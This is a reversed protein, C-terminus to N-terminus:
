VFRIKAKQTVKWKGNELEAKGNEKTEISNNGLIELDTAYKLYEDVELLRKQVDRCVDFEATKKDAKIYLEFVTTDSLSHMVEQFVGNENAAALYYKQKEKEQSYSVSSDTEEQTQPKAQNREDQNTTPMSKDSKVDKNTLNSDAVRSKDDKLPNQVSQNIGSEQIISNIMQHIRGKPKEGSEVVRNIIEDESLNNKNRLLSYTSIGISLLSLGLSLYVLRNSQSHKCAVTGLLLFCVVVVIYTKIKM